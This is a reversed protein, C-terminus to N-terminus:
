PFELYRYPFSQLLKPISKILLCGISKAKAEDKYGILRQPKANWGMCNGVMNGEPKM